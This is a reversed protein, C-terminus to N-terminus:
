RKEKDFKLINEVRSKVYNTQKRYSFAFLLILLICGAIMTINKVGSKTFVCPWVYSFLLTLFVCIATSTMCCYMNNVMSFYRVRGSEDLKEAQLYDSYPAFKLFAKWWTCEYRLASEVVLSGIRSIILGIFYILVANEYFDHGSLFNFCTLYKVLVVYISGPVINNVVEYVSINDIIKEFAKDMDIMGIKLMLRSNYKM